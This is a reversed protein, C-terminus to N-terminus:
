CGAPRMSSKLPSEDNPPELSVIGEGCPLPGPTNAADVVCLTTTEPRSQSSEGLSRSKLKIRLKRASCGELRAALPYPPPAGGRGSVHLADGEGLECPPCSEDSSFSSEKSGQCTYEHSDPALSPIRLPTMELLSPHITVRPECSYGRPYPCLTVELDLKISPEECVELEPSTAKLLYLFSSGKTSTSSLGYTRSAGKRAGSPLESEAGEGLKPWVGLREKEGLGHILLYAHSLVLCPSASRRVASSPHMSASSRLSRPGLKWRWAPCRGHGLEVGWWAIVGASCSLPPQAHARVRLRDEQWVGLELHRKHPDLEHLGLELWPASSISSGVMAAASCSVGGPVENSQPRSKGSERGHDLERAHGLKHELFLMSRLRLMAGRCTYSM